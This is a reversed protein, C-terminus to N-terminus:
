LKKPVLVGGIVHVVGNSAKMDAAVVEIGNVTVKGDRIAVKLKEGQLTVLEQGDKLDTSLSTGKVVHFQLVKSLKAADGAVKDVTAKAAEFAANNPAFVTYGGEAPADFTAVLGATTLHGVLVSVDGNASALAAITKPLAAISDQKAKEAMEVMAISDAIRVSDAKAKEAAAKGGDGCSSLVISGAFVVAAGLVISKLNFM